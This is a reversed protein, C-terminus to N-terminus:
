TRGYGRRSTTSLEARGDWPVRLSQSSVPGDHLRRVLSGKGDYVNIRVPDTGPPTSFEVRIETEPNFPNPAPQLRVAFSPIGQRVSLMFDALGSVEVPLPLESNEISGSYTSQLDGFLFRLDAM